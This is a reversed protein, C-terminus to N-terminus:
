FDAGVSKRVPLKGSTINAHLVFCFLITSSLSDSIPILFRDQLPFVHFQQLTSFDSVGPDKQVSLDSCFCIKRSRENLVLLGSAIQQALGCIDM